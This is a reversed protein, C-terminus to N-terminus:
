VFSGASIIMLLVVLFFMLGVTLLSMVLYSLGKSLATSLASVCSFDFAETIAAVAKLLLSFVAISVVLSLIKYFVIILGIIGVSNKIVASGAIVLDFGDKLFGGVIPVSSSVLYKAAKFSIGDYSASAIGQASLYVGFVAVILGVIWKIVSSFFETFKRLKFRKSFVAVVSFVTVIVSLPLVICNYVNIVGNTLFVLSPKYLEASTKAGSAVMLTLMIPSMIEATKAIDSITNETNKFFTATQPFLLVAVASFCVLSVVEGVGDSLYSSKFNQLLSCLLAVIIVGTFIPLFVSLDGLLQKKLYDTFGSYDIAFKGDLLSSIRYVFGGSGLIETEDYIKELESMDIKELEESVIDSLSEDAAATKISGFSSAVLLIIPLFCVIRKKM